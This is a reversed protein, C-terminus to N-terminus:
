FKRMMSQPSTSYTKKPPIFLPVQSYIVYINYITYANYLGLWSVLAMLTLETSALLCSINLLPSESLRQLCIIVKSVVAFAHNWVSSFATIFWEQIKGHFSYPYVIHFVHCYLAQHHREFHLQSLNLTNWLM